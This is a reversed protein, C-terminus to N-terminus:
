VFWEKSPIFEPKNPYYKKMYKEDVAEPKSFENIGYKKLWKLSEQRHLIIAKKPYGLLIGIQEPKGNLLANQISVNSNNNSFIHVCYTERKVVSYFVNRQKAVEILEKLEPYQEVECPADLLAAPKSNAIVACVDNIEGNKFVPKNKKFAWYYDWYYYTISSPCPYHVSPKWNAWLQITKHIDM